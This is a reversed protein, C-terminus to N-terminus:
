SRLLQTEGPLSEDPNKPTSHKVSTDQDFDADVGKGKFYRILVAISSRTAFKRSAEPERKCSSINLNMRESTTTKTKDLHKAATCFAAYPVRDREM